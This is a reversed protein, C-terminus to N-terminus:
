STGTITGLIVTIRLVRRTGTSKDHVHGISVGEEEEKEDEKEEM